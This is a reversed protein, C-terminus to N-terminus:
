GGPLNVIYYVKGWPPVNVIYYKNRMTFRGVYEFVAFDIYYVKRGSVKSHLLYERPPFNVIYCVNGREYGIM